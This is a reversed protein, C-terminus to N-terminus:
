AETRERLSHSRTAAAPRQLVPAGIGQRTPVVARLSGDTGVHCAQEWQADQHM